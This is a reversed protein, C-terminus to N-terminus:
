EGALASDIMAQTGRADELSWPWDAEGRLAAGFAEVQLVYQNIGTFRETVVTQNPYSIRIEAQDFVNANFPCTVSIVADSGHFHVEQRNAMRIGTMSQFTFGPFEFGVEAFVDVDNELRLHAHTMALPDGGTAYRVSGFTYVGIDRLGGGGTEPNNRINAMDPNNYSFAANVHWLEGAVGQALLAKVRRWQPHHVIMFAESILGGTDARAAILSDFETASLALPKECLVAKGARLARESWEVHMHNPLPIYVADIDPDDLLAQYSTHHRLGPTLDHFPSVKDVSSSAIALLDSNRASVIAPAMHRLAFNSAGLVGWRITKTGSM